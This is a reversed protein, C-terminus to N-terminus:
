LSASFLGGYPLLVGMTDVMSFGGTESNTDDDFTFPFDNTIITYLWKIGGGCLAQMYRNINEPLNILNDANSIEGGVKAPFYERLSVKASQSIFKLAGILTEPEGGSKNIMIQFRIVNRYQEDTAGFREAGVISGIGDLQTGVAGEIYRGNYLDKLVDEIEQYQQAFISIVQAINEKTKFQQLLLDLARNVVDDYFELSM